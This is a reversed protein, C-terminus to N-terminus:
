LCDLRKKMLYVGYIYAIFAYFLIMSVCIFFPLSPHNGVTAGRAGEMIFTMPNLLDLLAITPSITYLTNWPFQYCGLYWMPFLIRLWVNDVLHLNKIYAALILSFCGYFINATIFIIICRMWSFNDFAYLDMLVLLGLPLLSISIILGQFMNSLAIKLFIYSQQIPLSLEYLIAQDSTIDEILSMANQMGIWLGFSIASSVLIFPGFNHLGMAPLFMQSIFTSILVWYSAMKLRHFFQQSFIFYERQLLALFTIIQTNKNMRDKSQM